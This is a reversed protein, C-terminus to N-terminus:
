LTVLPANKPPPITGLGPSIVRAPLPTNNRSSIVSNLGSISDVKQINLETINM